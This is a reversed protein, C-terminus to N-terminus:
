FPKTVLKLAGQDIEGEDILDLLKTNDARVFGKKTAREYFIEIVIPMGIRPHRLYVGLRIQCVIRIQRDCANIIVCPCYQWNDPFNRPSFDSSVSGGNQLLQRRVTELTYYDAV